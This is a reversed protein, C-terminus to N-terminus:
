LPWSLLVDPLGCVAFGVFLLVMMGVTRCVWSLACTCSLCGHLVLIRSSCHIGAIGLCVPHIVGLFQPIVAFITSCRSAPIGSYRWFLPVGSHRFLPIGGFCRFVPIGSHRSVALVASCRFVPIGSCRWFLLFVNMFLIKECIMRHSTHMMAEALGGWVLSLSM